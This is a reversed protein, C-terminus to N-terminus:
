RNGWDCSSEGTGSWSTLGMATAEEGIADTVASDVALAYRQDADLEAAVDVVRLEGQTGDDAVEATLFQHEGSEWRALSGEVDALALVDTSALWRALGEDLASGPDPAPTATTSMLGYRVECPTGSPAAYEVVLEPDEAWDQWDGNATAVGVGGVAILMGLTLGGALLPSRRRPLRAMAEHVAPRLDGPESLSPASRELLDDLRDNPLHDM